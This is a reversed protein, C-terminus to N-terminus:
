RESFFPSVVVRFGFLYDRFDPDLDGFERFACRVLEADLYFAGGRLVRSDRASLDERQAREKGETPYPYEGWLSRTWELVNGSMEECGYPSAGGPFCGVASTTHIGTDFCNALNPNPENGWPYILGDTGRAAKEWEAESPLTVCWGQKNFLSSLPEPTGQWNRLQETLWECYALVDYWTVYVVPHNALGELSKPDEPKYGSESVLSQFQAVTVPYRAIYYLPLTVKHQKEDSGMLFPGDLIEVFGLLPEDPLYWAEPRFRPDGLRALIDGCAARERAALTRASRVAAILWKQIREYATSFRGPENIREKRVHEAFDTEVLSQATAQVQQAEDPSVMEQEPGKSVLSDVLDSIIRPTSGSAGAALL